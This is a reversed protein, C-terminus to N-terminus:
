RRVTDIFRHTEGILDLDRGEIRSTTTTDLLVRDRAAKGARTAHAVQSILHADPPLAFMKHHARGALISRRNRRRRAAVEIEATYPPIGLRVHGAFSRGGYSDIPREPDYLWTTDYLREHATSRASHKRRLLGGAYLGFTRFAVREATPKPRVDIPALSPSIGKLVRLEDTFEYQREMRVTYTRRIALRESAVYAAGAYGGSFFRRGRRGRKGVQEFEVVDGHRTLTTRELWRMPTLSGDIPEFYFARRGFRAEADSLRAFGLKTPDAKEDALFTKITESGAYFGRRHRIGRSRYPYIRLQPFRSLFAIREDTTMSRGAYFKAPPRIVRLVEGDVLAIHQRIGELTGKIQHMPLARAAVWRKREVPWMKNWIDVSLGWALHPLANEPCSAPRWLDRIPTPIGLIEAQFAEDLRRELHSHNAPHITSPAYSM